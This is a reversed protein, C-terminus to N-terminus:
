REPHLIINPRSATQQAWATFASLVLAGTTIAIKM